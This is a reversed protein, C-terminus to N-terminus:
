GAPAVAGEILSRGTYSGAELPRVATVALGAAAFLAGFAAADRERGGTEVLMMLDGRVTGPREAVREPLLAEIALVRGSEPRRMAERCRALIRGARDDAWDHLVTKLLFVDGRPVAAFMDGGILECRAAVGAGAVVRRADGILHPQDLLAGRLHPHRQLVAALVTGDGGGVDVVVEFPSFDVAAAIAAATEWTTGPNLAAGLAAVAPQAAFHPFPTDGFVHEFPPTGTMVAHYLGNWAMALEASKIFRGALPVPADRRLLASVETPGFRGEGDEVLLEHAVMGRLVRHLTGAAARLAM